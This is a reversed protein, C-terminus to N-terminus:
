PIPFMGLILIWGEPLGLSPLAIVDEGYTKRYWEEQDFNEGVEWPQAYIKPILRRTYQPEDGPDNKHTPAENSSTPTHKNRDVQTRSNQTNSNQKIVSPSTSPISSVTSAGSFPHLTSSLHGKSFEDMTPSTM